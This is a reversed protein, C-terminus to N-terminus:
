ADAFNLSRVVEFSQTSADGSGLYDDFWIHPLQDAGAMWEAVLQHRLMERAWTGVLPWRRLEIRHRTLRVMAPALALDALSITGFLYPGGSRQLVQDLANFLRDCEVVEEETLARKLPYFSSEFSIRACIGSLGSHQWALISRAQARLLLDEPLLQGGSVDNAFEMIALSDFIVQEGFVLVPVMAPPSFLGVRELNAFRQPRRIDIVEEYFDFQAARLALWARMAWSSANKTGSYLIADTM